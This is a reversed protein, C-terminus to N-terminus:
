NDGLLKHVEDMTAMSEQAGHRTVSIASAASAFMAAELRSQGLMLAAAYAGNFADGAGTSDVAKVPFAKITAENGGAQAFYSGKSGLKLIVGKAGKKLLEEAAADTGGNAIPHGLYFAAETENPTLWTVLPLLADPLKHAPAPDLIFPVKAEACLQALRLVTELPIELQALVIGANAIKDKHQDLFAPTVQTNAGPAVVISNEGAASVTILAVGSSGPVTGVAATDVGARTLGDRLQKGLDDSGLQGIMQVSCGLRAAAVAQNAGKGGPHMLFGTGLITEGGAPIHDATAVLDMNISGVVVIPKMDSM